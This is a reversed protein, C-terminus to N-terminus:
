GGVKTFLLDRPALAILGEPHCIPHLPMKLETPM